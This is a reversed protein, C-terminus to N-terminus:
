GEAAQRLKLNAMAEVRSVYGPTRRLRSAIEPHGSGTRRAALICREIPRLSMVPEVPESAEVRTMAGAPRGRPLDSLALVRQVYRPSRRIRWAVDSESLGEQRLRRITREIPRLQQDTM